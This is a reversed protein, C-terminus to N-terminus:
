AERDGFFSRRDLSIREVDDIEEESLGTYVQEALGLVDESLTADDVMLRVHQGNRIPVAPKELLRFTGDEFIAELTQTM